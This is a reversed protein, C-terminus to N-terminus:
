LGPDADSISADPDIESGYIPPNNFLYFKRPSDEKSDIWADFAPGSRREFEEMLWGRVTAVDETVKKKDLEEWDAVLQEITRTAIMGLAKTESSHKM